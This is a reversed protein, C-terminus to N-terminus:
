ESFNGGYSSIRSPSLFDEPNQLFNPDIEIYEVKLEEKAEM